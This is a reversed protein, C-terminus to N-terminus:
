EIPETALSPLMVQPFNQFIGSIGFIASYKQQFLNQSPFEAHVGSISNKEHKVRKITKGVAGASGAERPTLWAQM